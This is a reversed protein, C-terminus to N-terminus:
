YIYPIITSPLYETCFTKLYYKDIRDVCMCMCIYVHMYIHKHTYIHICVCVCVCVCVCIYIHVKFFIQTNQLCSHSNSTWSCLLYAPATHALEGEFPICIYIYTKWTHTHEHVHTYFPKKKKQSLLIRLSSCYSLPRPHRGTM